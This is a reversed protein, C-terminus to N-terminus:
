IPLIIEVLTGNTSSSTFHLTANMISTRKKMNNLGNKKANGFEFGKGNDQIQISIYNQLLAVTCSVQTAKAHKAANTMAEKTVNILHRGHSIPLQYDFDPPLTSIYQFDILINQFFDDGFEQIYALLHLLHDSKYDIAWIFDKAGDILESSRLQINQLAQQTKPDIQPGLKQSLVQSLLSIGALKNGLEDHFDRALNSRLNEIESKKIELAINLHDMKQKILAENEKELLDLTKVFAFLLFGLVVMASMLTTFVYDSDLIPLDFKHIYINHKEFYYYVCFGLINLLTFVIGSAMGAFLFATCVLVIAWIKDISFLGGTDLFSAFLVLTAIAVIINSSRVLRSEKNCYFFFFVIVLWM